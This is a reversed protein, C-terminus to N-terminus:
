VARNPRYNLHLRTEPELAQLQEEITPQRTTHFHSAKDGYFAMPRGYRKIYDRLISMNTETSDTAYFRMFVRSTADDILCILVAEQGRGEFWDHISTDIQIMEGYCAKRQRFERHYAKRGKPEWLGEAIMWKRLTERSVELDHCQALKEAALTPGFDPYHERVLSIVQQRFQEPFRRQSPKGRSKHVLGIDGQKRYRAVMRRVHRPSCNLITAAQAQTMRIEQSVLQPVIKLRNREKPSM